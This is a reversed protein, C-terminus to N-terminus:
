NAEPAQKLPGEACPHADPSRDRHDRRRWEVVPPVIGVSEVDLDQARGVHHQKGPHDADLNARHQHDNRCLISCTTFSIALSQTRDSAIPTDKTATISATWQNQASKRIEGAARFM